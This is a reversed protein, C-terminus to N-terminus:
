WPQTGSEILQWKQEDTLGKASEDMDSGFLRKKMDERVTFEDINELPANEKERSKKMSEHISIRRREAISIKSKKQPNFEVESHSEVYPTLDGQVWNESAPTEIGATAPVEKPPPTNKKKGSSLHQILGFVLIAGAVALLKKDNNM